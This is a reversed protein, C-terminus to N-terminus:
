AKEAFNNLENFEHSLMSYCASPEYTGDRLFHERMLGEYKLGLQELIQISPKNHPSAFAELRHVNMEEFGYRMIRKAAEIMLGQKRYRENSMVYGIEARNHEQYWRYFGCTGITRNDKQLLFYKFTMHYNTMGKAFCDKALQLGKDDFDFKAKLEDDTFHTLMYNYSEPTVEKLELRETKLITTTPQM